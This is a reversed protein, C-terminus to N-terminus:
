SGSDYHLAWAGHQQRYRSSVWVVTKMGEMLINKYRSFFCMFHFIAQVARSLSQAQVIEEEKRALFRAKDQGLFEPSFAKGQSCIKAVFEVQLVVAIYEGYQGTCCSGDGLFSCDSDNGCTDKHARCLFRLVPGSKLTSSQFRFSLCSCMELVNKVIAEIPRNGHSDAQM